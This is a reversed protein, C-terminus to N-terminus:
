GCFMLFLFIEANEVTKSTPVHMERATRAFHGRSESQESVPLGWVTEQRQSATITSMLLM